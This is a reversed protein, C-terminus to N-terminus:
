RFLGMGVGLGSTLAFRVGGSRVFHVWMGPEGLGPVRVVGPYLNLALFADSGYPDVERGEM